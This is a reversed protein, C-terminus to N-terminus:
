KEVVIEGRHFEHDIYELFKEAHVAFERSTDHKLNVSFSSADAPHIRTIDCCGFNFFDAVVGPLM